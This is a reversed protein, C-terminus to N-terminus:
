RRSRLAYGLNILVLGTWAILLGAVGAQVAAIATLPIAALLSLCVIVLTVTREGRVSDREVATRSRLHTGMRADVAQQVRNVVTEVFADDYDPGLEQRAAFAATLDDHQPRPITM